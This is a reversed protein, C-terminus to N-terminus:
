SAILTVASCYAEENNTDETRLQIIGDYDTGDSLGSVDIPTVGEYWTPTTVDGSQVTGSQGGIDVNLFSDGEGGINKYLRAHITITSIGTIKTFKFRRLTQFSTSASILTQIHAASTLPTIDTGSAVMGHGNAGTSVSEVGSWTFIVNSTNEANLTTGSISLGVGLVLFATTGESDDWFFLRDANPDVLVVGTGGNALSVPTALQAIAVWGTAGIGSEKIYVTTGTSGDLRLFLSGIGASIANEPTAYGDYVRVTDTDGAINDNVLTLIRNLEALGEPTKLFETTFNPIGSVM